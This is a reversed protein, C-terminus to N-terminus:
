PLTYQIENVSMDTSRSVVVLNLDASERIGCCEKQKLDFYIHTKTM